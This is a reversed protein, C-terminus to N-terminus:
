QNRRSYFYAGALGLALIGASGQAPEPDEPEDPDDRSDGPDATVDFTTSDTEGHGDTVTLTVTYDGAESYDYSGTEGSRSDGNGFDWSYGTINGNPDSSASADVHARMGSMTVEGAANPPYSVINSPDSTLLSLGSESEIRDIPSVYFHGSAGGWAMGVADQSGRKIVPSGSDGGADTGEIYIQDHLTSDTGAQSVSVGMERVVGEQTGTTRGSKEVYQGVGVTTKGTILGLNWVRNTANVGNDLSAWAFDVYGDGQRPVYGAVNGIKYSSGPYEPQHVPDGVQSQGKPALVHHNSTVYLNDVDHMVFGATGAGNRENNRISIGGRVPRKKTVHHPRDGDGHDGTSPPEREEFHVPYGQVKEPFQSPDVNAGPRVGIILAPLGDREGEGVSVVGEHALLDSKKANDINGHTM